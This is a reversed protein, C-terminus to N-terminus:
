SGAQRRPRLAGTPCVAACALAAEGLGAAVNGGFPVAVRGSFGRGTFTLGPRAGTKEAQRVCLGCAVCKGPEFVVAPHSDDRSFGRREGRFRSTSAGHETALQRLRCDDRALCDCQLCRRAEAIADERAPSDPWEGTRPPAAGEGQFAHEEAESLRGMRVLLEQPEPRFPRGSLYQDISVAAARGSAVARVAARANLVLDGAAFLGPRDVAFTRRDVAAGEPLL